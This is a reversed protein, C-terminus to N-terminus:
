KIGQEAYGTLMRTEQVLLPSDFLIIKHIDKFFQFVVLYLRELFTQTKRKRNTKNKKNDLIVCETHEIRINKISM